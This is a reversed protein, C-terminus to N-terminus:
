TYFSVSAVFESDTPAHEPLQGAMTSVNLALSLHVKKGEIINPLFLKSNIKEKM